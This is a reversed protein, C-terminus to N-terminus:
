RKRPAKRAPEPVADAGAPAEAPVAPDAPVQRRPAAAQRAQAATAEDLRLLVENLKAEVAHIQAGLKDIDDKSALRAEALAKEVAQNWFAKAGFAGEMLRGMGQVYAPSKSLSGFTDDVTKLWTEWAKDFAGQIQTTDM